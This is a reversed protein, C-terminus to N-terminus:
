LKNKRKLMSRTFNEWLEIYPIGSTNDLKSGEPYKFDLSSYSFNNKTLVDYKKKM